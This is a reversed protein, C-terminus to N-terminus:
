IPMVDSTEAAPNPSDSTRLWQRMTPYPDTGHLRAQPEDFALGLWQLMPVALYRGAAFNELLAASGGRYGDPHFVVAPDIRLHLAAAYSWAIAMMEEAPDARSDGTITARRTPEVVALHGAEHLLDGPFRLGGEDVVLVGRDIWVGPVIPRDTVTGAAVLLGITRLFDAIRGVLPDDFAATTSSSQRPPVPAPVAAACSTDPATSALMDDLWDNAVCDIVLHVRDLDSTNEVRHPLELDLYWAEGAAMQVREGDLFFAVQHNTVIPVHIRLEGHAHSLRYDRHERINSRAGLKLLRVCTLRCHFASLVEQFYPCRALVPTDAYRESAGPDPYILEARGDVARLAVGSWRGDFDHANFHAVWESAAIGALDRQMREVDFGLPLISCKMAREMM